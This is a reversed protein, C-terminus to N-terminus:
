INDRYIDTIEQTCFKLEKFNFEDYDYKICCIFGLPINSDDNVIRFAIQKINRSLLRRYLVDDVDSLISNGQKDIKFYVQQDQILEAPLKNHRLIDIDKYMYAFEEDDKITSPNFKEAVVDFKYFPIGTMSSTGNHFIGFLIHDCNVRMRYKNLTNHILPAINVQNMMQKNHIDAKKTEHIGLQDIILESQKDIISEINKYYKDSEDFIASEVAKVRNSLDDIKNSNKDVVVSLKDIKEGISDKGRYTKIGDYIIYGATLILIGVAGWQSIISNTIQEM